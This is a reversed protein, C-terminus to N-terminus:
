FLLYEETWSSSVSALFTIFNLWPPLFSKEDKLILGLNTEAHVSLKAEVSNVIEAHVGTKAMLLLMSIATLKYNSWQMNPHSMASDPGTRTTKCIHTMGLFLNVYSPSASPQVSNKHGSKM